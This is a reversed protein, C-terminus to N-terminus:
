AGPGRAPAPAGKGEILSNAGRITARTVRVKADVKGAATSPLRDSAFNLAVL